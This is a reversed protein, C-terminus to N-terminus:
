RKIYKLLIKYIIENYNDIERLKNIMWRPLAITIRDKREDEPLPKRGM